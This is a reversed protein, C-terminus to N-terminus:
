PARSGTTASARFSGAASLYFFGSARLRSGTPSLAAGAGTGIIIVDYHNAQSM